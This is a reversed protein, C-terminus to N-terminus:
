SSCHPVHMCAFMCIRVCASMSARGLCSWGSSTLAAALFSEKMHVVLGEKEEGRRVERGKRGRMM